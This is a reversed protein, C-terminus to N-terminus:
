VFLYKPPEGAIWRHLCVKSDKYKRLGRCHHTFTKIVLSLLFHLNLIISDRSASISEPQAKSQSIQVISRMASLLNSMTTHHKEWPHLLKLPSNFGPCFQANSRLISDCTWKFHQYTIAFVIHTIDNDKWILSQRLPLSIQCVSM